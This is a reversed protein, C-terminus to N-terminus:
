PQSKDAKDPEARKAEPANAGPQAAVPKPEEVKIEILEAEFVLTAGGLIGLNPNGGDGFAISSPCVFKAKGGAKMKQFGETWCPIVQSLPFDTPQGPEDSNTFEKGGILTGRYHIKVTDTSVPSAGTGARLEEYILGSPFVHAGPAKKAKEIFSKSRDKEKQAKAAMRARAFEEIKPGYVSMEVQSKRALAMDKIGMTVYKMESATLGLPTVHNGIAVGYAYLTKQEDTQLESSAAPKAAPPNPVAPAAEQAPVPGSLMLASLLIVCLNLM